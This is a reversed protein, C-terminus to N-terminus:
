AKLRVLEVGEAVMEGEKALVADVTGDGGASLTLQLKMAEMVALAQGAKVTDGKKVLIQRVLGPMPATPSLAGAGGHQASTARKEGVTAEIAGLQVRVADKGSPWASVPIRQWVDEGIEQELLLTGDPRRASRFRYRKKGIAFSIEGGKRALADIEIAQGNIHLTKSMAEGGPVDM